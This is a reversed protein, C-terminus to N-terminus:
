LSILVMVSFIPGLNEKVWMNKMM